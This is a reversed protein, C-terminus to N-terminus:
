LNDGYYDLLFLNYLNLSFWDEGIEDFDDEGLEDEDDFDEDDEIVTVDKKKAPKGAVEEDDIEIEKEAMTYEGLWELELDDDSFEELNLEDEDPNRGREDLDM